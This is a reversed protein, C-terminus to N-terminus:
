SQKLSWYIGLQSLFFFSWYHGCISASMKGFASPIFSQGIRSILISEGGFFSFGKKSKEEWFFLYKKNGSFYVVLHFVRAFPCSCPHFHFFIVNFDIKM